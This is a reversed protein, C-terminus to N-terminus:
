GRNETHKGTLFNVQQAEAKQVGTKKGEGRPSRRAFLVAVQRYLCVSGPSAGLSWNIYAGTREQGTVSGKPVDMSIKLGSSLREPQAGNEAWGWRPHRNAPPFTGQIMVCRPNALWDGADM